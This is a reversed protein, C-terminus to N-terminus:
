SNVYKTIDNFFWKVGGSWDRDTAYLGWPNHPDNLWIFPDEGVPPPVSLKHRVTNAAINATDPLGWSPRYTETWQWSYYVNFPNKRIEPAASWSAPVFREEQGTIAVLLVPNVNYNKASQCITQIDSLTFSSDWGHVYNYLKQASVDQYRLNAEVIDGAKTAEVAEQQAIQKKLDAVQNQTLHMQQSFQAEQQQLANISTNVQTISNQKQGQLVVQSQKLNFLQTGKSQLQHLSSHEDSQEQKLQKHLSTVKDLLQKESKAVTALLNLRSLFDSFSTSQFIVYLYSVTGNEYSARLMDDVAVNDSVLESQTKEIRKNLNSIKDQLQQQQQQNQTIQQQTQGLKQKTQQLSQQLSQTKDKQNKIQNSTQNLQSQLQQTKQQKQALQQKANSLTDAWSTSNLAPIFILLVALILFNKPILKM